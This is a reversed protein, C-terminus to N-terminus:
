RPGFVISLMGLFALVTGTVFYKALRPALPSNLFFARHRKVVDILMWQLLFEHRLKKTDTNTADIENVMRRFISDGLLFLITAVFM